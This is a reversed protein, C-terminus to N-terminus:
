NLWMEPHKEIYEEQPWMEGQHVTGDNYIVRLNIREVEEDFTKAIEFIPIEEDREKRTGPEFEYSNEQGTDYKVDLFAEEINFFDLEPGDLATNSLEMDFGKINGQPDEGSSFSIPLAPQPRYHRASLTTDESVRTHDGKAIYRYNYDEKPDLELSASYTLDDIQVVTLREWAEEDQDDKSYELYVDADEEIERFSWSLEMIIEEPSSKEQDVSFEESLIWQQEKELNYLNEQISNISRYMRQNENNVKHSVQTIEDELQVVRLFGYVNIALSIILLTLLLKFRSDTM